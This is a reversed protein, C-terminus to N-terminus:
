TPCSFEYLAVDWSDTGLDIERALQVTFVSFTNDPYAKTSSNSFLTVYLNCGM